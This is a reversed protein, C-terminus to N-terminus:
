FSLEVQVLGNADGYTIATGIGSGTTAKSCQFGSAVTVPDGVSIPTSGVQMYVIDGSQALAVKDGIEYGSTRPDYVVVGFPATAIADILVEPVLANTSATDLKVVYGFGVPTTTENSSVVANHIQPHNPVQAYMGAVPEINYGTLSFAQAM